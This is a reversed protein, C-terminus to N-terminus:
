TGSAPKPTTTAPRSCPPSCPTPAWCLYYALGGTRRHRRILLWRDDAGWPTGPNISVRAWDYDRPGRSGQGASHRQWSRRPLAAALVDVRGRGAGTSVHQDVAVALVYGVGRERLGTRFATNAGYVEDATAWAAPVDADLAAYVMEAAQAPKTAFEVGEPIGAAARRDREACRTKAPLYLRRDILARGHPSAYSLFM